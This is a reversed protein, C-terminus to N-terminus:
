PSDYQLETNSMTNKFMEIMVGKPLRSKIVRITDFHFMFVVQANSMMENSSYYNATYHDAYGMYVINNYLMTKLGDGYVALFKDNIATIFKNVEDLDIYNKM